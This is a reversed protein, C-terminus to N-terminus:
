SLVSGYCGCLDCDHRESKYEWILIAVDEEGGAGGEDEVGDVAEVDAHVALGGAYFVGIGVAGAFFGVFVGFDEGEVAGLAGM